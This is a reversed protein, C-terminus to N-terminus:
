EQDNKRRHKLILEIFERFAGNGGSNHCVYDSISKIESHGDSPTGSLGVSLM